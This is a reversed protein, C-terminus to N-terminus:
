SPRGCFSRSPTRGSGMEWGITAKIDEQLAMDFKEEAAAVVHFVRVPDHRLAAEVLVRQITRLVIGEVAGDVGSVGSSVVDVRRAPKVLLQYSLTNFLTYTLYLIHSISHM